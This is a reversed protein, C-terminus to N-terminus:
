PSMRASSSAFPCTMPAFSRRIEAVAIASFPVSTVCLVRSNELIALSATSSQVIQVFVTADGSCFSTMRFCPSQILLAGATFRRIKADASLEMERTQMWTFVLESSSNVAHSASPYPRLLEM